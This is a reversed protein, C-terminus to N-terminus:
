VDREGALYDPIRGTELRRLLQGAKQVLREDRYRKGVEMATVVLAKAEAEEGFFRIQNALNFIANAVGLEDGLDTYVDKAALLAARCIRREASARDNVKLNGFQLARQGASIGIYILVGALAQGSKTEAVLASAESFAAAWDRELARIKSDEKRRDSETFLGLGIANEAQIQYWTQLYQWLFMQNLFGGKQALFIAQVSPANVKKALVIGRDCIEVAETLDDDVPSFLETIGLIANIQVIPDASEYAIRKLNSKTEPNPKELRLAIVRKLDKEARESEQEGKPPEYTQHSNFESEDKRGRDTAARYHELLEALQQEIRPAHLDPFEPLLYHHERLLVALYTSEIHNGDIKRAAAEERIKSVIASPLKRPTVFTWREVASKGSNRLKEAKSLDDLAKNLYDRDQKREPKIPCYIALVRRETVVYGDNGEDGRTGDIVQYNEKYVAAFLTNCLRTFEQPNVIQAIQDELSM